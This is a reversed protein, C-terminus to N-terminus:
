SNIFECLLFVKASLWTSPSVNRPILNSPVEFHIFPLFFVVLAINFENGKM